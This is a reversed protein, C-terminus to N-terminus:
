RGFKGGMLGPIAEIRNRFEPGLPINCHQTKAPNWVVNKINPRALNQPRRSYRFACFGKPAFAPVEM